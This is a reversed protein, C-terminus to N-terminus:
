CGSRMGKKRASAAGYRGAMFAAMKWGTPDEAAAAHASAVAGRQPESVLAKHAVQEEPTLVRRIFRARQRSALITYIRSIQCIDNGINLPLPFPRLPGM